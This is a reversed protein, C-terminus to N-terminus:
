NEKKMRKAIGLASLGAGVLLITAPEPARHTPPPCPQHSNVSQVVVPKSNVGAEALSNFSLLASLAIAACATYIIKM